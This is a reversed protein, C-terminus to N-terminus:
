VPKPTEAMSSKRSVKGVQSEQELFNQWLDSLSEKTAPSADPFYENALAPTSPTRHVLPSGPLRLSGTTSATGPRSLGAQERQEDTWGLLAAILQLIQFKKPDTRDLALFHLLHNTVIQSASPTLQRLLRTTPSTTAYRDVNDEPKGKKLCRLAKILHDNLTVAEHRLKGILLNKEKVEKEFPLARELDRKTAELEAAAASSAKEADQL